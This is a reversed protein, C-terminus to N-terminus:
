EKNLEKVKKETKVYRGVVIILDLIIGMIIREVLEHIFVNIGSPLFELTAITSFICWHISMIIFSKTANRIRENKGEKNDKMNLIVEQNNKLYSKVSIIFIAFAAIGILITIGIRADENQFTQSIFRYVSSGLMLAIAVFGFIFWGIDDIKKKIKNVSKCEIDGVLADVSVSFMYAIEKVKEIDPLSQGSEWKTVSQRSVNLREALEEQTIGERKRLYKLNENFKM